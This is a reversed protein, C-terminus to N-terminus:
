RGEFMKGVLAGLLAGGVAPLGYAIPASFLEAEHLRPGIVVAAVAGGVIAGLVIARGRQRRVLTDGDASRSAFLSTIGPARQQQQAEEAHQIVATPSRSQATVVVAPTVLFATVLAAQRGRRLTNM